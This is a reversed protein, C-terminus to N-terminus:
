LFRHRTQKGAARRSAEGEGSPALTVRDRVWLQQSGPDLRVQLAHHLAPAAFLPKCFLALWLLIYCIPSKRTM